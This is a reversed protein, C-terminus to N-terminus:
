RDAKAYRARLRVTRFVMASLATVLAVGGLIICLRMAPQGLQARQRYLEVLTRIWEVAGLLLAAQIMRAAWRRPVALLGLVVFVAAVMIVNGARFFHAGLVLLSLVVPTLLLATV